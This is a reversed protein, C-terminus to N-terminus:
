ESGSWALLGFEHQFERNLSLSVVGGLTQVEQFCVGRQM